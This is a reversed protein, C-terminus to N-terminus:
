ILLRWIIAYHTLHHVMQDLGLSRWFFTNGRIERQADQWGEQRTKQLRVNSVYERSSLAKFRGLYKPGAKIRDMVFHVGFDVLALWWLVPNVYLVVALTFAAHIGCHAVLPIFFGWDPLFKKLMYENQLLYDAVYHKIQFFILLIFVQILVLVIAVETM